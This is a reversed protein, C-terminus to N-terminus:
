LPCVSHLWGNLLLVALAAGALVALGLIAFGVIEGRLSERELARATIENSVFLCVFVFVLAAAMLLHCPTM